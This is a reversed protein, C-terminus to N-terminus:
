VKKYLWEEKDSKNRELIEDQCLLTLIQSLLSIQKGQLSFGKQDLRAAVEGVNKAENFFGEETLKKLLEKSIRSKAM